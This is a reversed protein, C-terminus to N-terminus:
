DGTVLKEVDKVSSVPLQCTFGTCLRVDELVDKGELKRKEINEVLGKLVENRESLGKPLNDPDLHVLIIGM